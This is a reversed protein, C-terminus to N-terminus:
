NEILIIKFPNNIYSLNNFNINILSIDKNNNETLQNLYSLNYRTQSQSRQPIKIPYNILNNKNNKKEKIIKNIPNIPNSIVNESFINNNSNSKQINKQIFHYNILNSKQNEIEELLNKGNENNNNNNQYNKNINKQSNDELISNVNESFNIDKKIDDILLNVSNKINIDSNDRYLYNINNYKNRINKLNHSPNIVNSESYYYNM